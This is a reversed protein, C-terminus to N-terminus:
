ISLQLLSLLLQLPARNIRRYRIYVIPKKEKGDFEPPVPEMSDNFIHEHNQEIEPRKDAYGRKSKCWYSPKLCFLPPYKMDYKDPLVKDFYIALLMYLVSDFILLVYSYKLHPRVMSKYLPLLINETKNEIGKKIIGLM